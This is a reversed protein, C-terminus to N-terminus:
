TRGGHTPGVGKRWLQRPESGSLCLAQRYGWLLRSSLREHIHRKSHTPHTTQSRAYAAPVIQRYVAVSPKRLTGFPLPGGRCGKIGDSGSLDRHPINYGASLPGTTTQTPHCRTKGLLKAWHRWSVCPARDRAPGGWQGGRM